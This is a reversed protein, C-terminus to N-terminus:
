FGESGGIRFNNKTSFLIFEHAAWFEPNIRRFIWNICRNFFFFVLHHLENKMRM